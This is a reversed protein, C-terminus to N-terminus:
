PICVKQITYRTMLYNHIPCIYVGETIHLTDYRLQTYSQSLTFFSTHTHRSHVSVAFHDFTYRLTHTHKINPSVWLGKLFQPIVKLAYKVYWVLVKKKADIHTHTIYTCM